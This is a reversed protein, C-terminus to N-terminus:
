PARLGRKARQFAEEFSIPGNPKSAIRDESVGPVTVAGSEEAATQLQKTVRLTIEAELRKERAEKTALDYLMQTYERPTMSGPEVKIRSGLKIMASEHERWDPNAKQFDALAETADAQAEQALRLDEAERLPRVAEEVTASMLPKLGALLVDATTDGLAEAIKDRVAKFAQAKSDETAAAKPDVVQLGVHPALRLLGERVGEPTSFQELFKRANAAETFKSGLLQRFIKRNAPDLKNIATGFRTKEEATLFWEPDPETDAAATTAADTEPAPATATATATADATTDGTPTQGQSLTQGSPSPAPAASAKPEGGSAGPSPVAAPTIETSGPGDSASRSASNGPTSGPPIPQAM